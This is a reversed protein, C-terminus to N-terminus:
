FYLTKKQLYNKLKLYTLICIYTDFTSIFYISLYGFDDVLKIPTSIIFAKIQEFLNVKGVNTFQWLAGKANETITFTKYDLVSYPTGLVFAVVSTLASIILNGLSDISLVYEDKESFVRIFHALVVFLAAIAGDYKTSAALGVFLGAFFYNKTNRVFLIKISFYLAWALFFLMPVDPMTYHSRLVHFPTLMLAAAAFLGAKENFLTKASLYIPIATLLVLCQPLFEQSYIFFLIIM